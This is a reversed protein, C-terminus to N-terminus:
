GAHPAKSNVSFIADILSEGNYLVRFSGADKLTQNKQHIKLVQRCCRSTNGHHHDSTSCGTLANSWSLASPDIQSQYPRSVPRGDAGYYEITPQHSLEESLNLVFVTVGPNQIFLPLIDHYQLQGGSDIFQIWKVGFLKEKDAALDYEKDTRLGRKGTSHNIHHILEEEIAIQKTTDMTVYVDTLVSDSHAAGAGDRSVSITMKPLTSVVEALSTAMSVHGHGLVKLLAQDDEVVFWDDEELVSM